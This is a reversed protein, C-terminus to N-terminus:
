PEEKVRYYAERTGAPVSTDEYTGGEVGDALEDFVQVDLSREVTYTKGNVANWEITVANTAPDTVLSTIQFVEDPRVNLLKLLFSDIAIAEDDASSNLGHVFTVTLTEATHEIALEGDEDFITSWDYANDLTWGVTNRDEASEPGNNVDLWSERYNNSLNANSALEEVLGNVTSKARAILVSEGDVLVQFDGSEELDPIVDDGDPFSDSAALVFDMDFGDHPPLNEFFLTATGSHTASGTSQLWDGEFRPDIDNYSQAEVLPDLPFVPVGEEEFAEEGFGTNDATTRVLGDGNGSGTMATIGTELTANAGGSLKWAKSIPSFDEFYTEGGPWENPPPPAVESLTIVLDDIAHHEDSAGSSLHHLIEISLEDSTHAIDKLPSFGTVDYASDLTWNVVSRDAESAPGEGGVDNWQEQYLGTLNAGTVLQTVGGGALGTGGSGFKFSYVSKGDVLVEFDGDDDDISGGIGFKMDISISGHEPVGTLELLASGVPVGNEDAIGAGNVLWNDGSFEYNRYNDPAVKPVLTLLEGEENFTNQDNFGNASDRVTTVEETGDPIFDWLWGDLTWGVAQPDDEFDTSYTRSDPFPIPDALTYVASAVSLLGGVSLWLKRNRM